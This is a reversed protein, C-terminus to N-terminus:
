EALKIFVDHLSAERSHINTISVIQRIKDLREGWNDSNLSLHILLKNEEIILEDNKELINRIRNIDEKRIKDTNKFNFKLELIDEGYEKKFNEPSSLAIIKGQNIFAIRDCLIEAEQMYHTSLLVTKGATKFEKISKHIIELSLPDLGGTPEDLILLEPDNLLARCILLRQKMGKSYTKVQRKAANDLGFKNLLYNIRDRSVGYMDAFFKLNHFGSLRQYLNKEEFVVGIKGYINNDLSSSEKGFLKCSGDDKRELGLLINITTTKGAGNPGLFGFIEGMTVSFSIKNVAKVNAYQKELNSVKVIQAEKEAENIKDHLLVDSM